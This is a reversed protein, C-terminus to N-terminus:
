TTDLTALETASWVMGDFALTFGRRAALAEAEDHPPVTALSIHSGILATRDDVAGVQRLEQITKEVMAFNKHGSTAPDIELEGFTADLIAANLRSHSLKDMTEPLLWSSDLGYFITVGHRELVYNFAPHEPLLQRKDLMHNARLATVQTDGIQFPISPAVTHFCINPARQTALFRGSAEDWIHDAAFSLAAGIAASGYVNLPEQSRAALEFVSLPQFHDWHGHTILLDSVKTGAEVWHDFAALSHCDLLLDPYIFTQAATRRNRGGLTRCNIVNPTTNTTDDLAPFDGAGTGLFLCKM